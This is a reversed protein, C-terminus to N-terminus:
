RISPDLIPVQPSITDPLYCQPHQKRGTLQLVRDTVTRQFDFLSMMGGPKRLRGASKATLVELIGKAFVRNGDGNALSPGHDAAIFTIARSQRQLQRVWDDIDLEWAPSKVEHVADILLIVRCGARSLDALIDALSTASISPPGEQGVGPENVALLRKSQFELYHSEIVVAVVDGPGLPTGSEPKKLTEIATTLGDRTLKEGTLTQAHVQSSPFKKGTVPDVLKEALFRSLQDVDEEAYAIRPFRKDAFEEAGLALIELRSARPVPPLPATNTLDIAQDRRVGREDIAVLSVRADRDLGVPINSQGNAERVAPANEAILNAVVRGNVEVWLRSIGAAGAQALARYRLPITPQAAVVKQDLTVPAVPDLELAALRSTVPDPTAPQGPNAVAAIADAQVPNATDLLTDIVNARPAKPQRFRAEFKDISDFSGALLQAVTGRNTLWGLFKRDGDPSSDYYGRPTWIIWRRDVGPFLSLAPSDRKSSLAQLVPPPPDGNRRVQIVYNVGPIAADLKPLLAAPDVFKDGEATKDVVHGRKLGIGEAFGGPAVEGVVWAGDPQREFKAGFEPRKDANTLSWLRVTQDASASVLWRGDRSSALAYAAATHGNFIRTKEGTALNWLVIQGTNTAVAAIPQLHGQAPPIVTYAWWRGELSPDLSRTWGQGQANLFNFRFPDIPRISWGADTAVAHRYNPENPEPTFFSRSRLDFHEYEAAQGAIAPRARAFRVARGDARIGVDWLATGAGKLEEVPAAPAAPDLDKVFIAQADGGSYVLTRGDPRFALAQVLNSVVPLREVLAGGPLSRLEVVSSVDPATTIAAKRNAIFGAALRTGDPSIALSQIPGAREASLYTAGLLDDANYRVLAGGETGVIIWRGDPSAAIAVIERTSPQDDQNFLVPGGQAVLRPRSPDTIDYLRLIGDVGGAVLKRGNPLIALSNLPGTSDLLVAVEKRTEVEWIRVSKDRSASALYKGDPTFGLSTVPQRHGTAGAGVGTASLQGEVNGTGQANPGPYRFLLIEGSTSLVGFGAVALLRQNGGDDRPSLAMANVQGRPGRWYPPRLTRIPGSRDDLNWVNVVKDLGGTLLQTGGPTFVMSRVPAQHGGVRLVLIPDNFFEAPAVQAFASAPAIGGVVLSAFWAFALFHRRKMATRM